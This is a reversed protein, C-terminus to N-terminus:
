SFSRLRVLNRWNYGTEYHNVGIKHLVCSDCSFRVNLQDLVAVTLTACNLRLKKAVKRVVNAAFPSYAVQSTTSQPDSSYNVGECHHTAIDDWGFLYACRDHKCRFAATALIMPDISMNRDESPENLLLARLSKKREEMAAAVLEPLRAFADDFTAATVKDEIPADILRVFPEYGLIEWIQPLYKWQSPHLTRQYQKYRMHIIQKRHGIIIAAEKRLREAQREM